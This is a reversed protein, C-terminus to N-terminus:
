LPTVSIQVKMGGPGCHSPVPCAFYLGTAADGAQVTYRAYGFFRIPAVKSSGSFDCNDYATGSALKRVGHPWFGWKFLAQLPLLHQQLLEVSPLVDGPRIVPQRWSQHVYFSWPLPGYGVLVAKAYFSWQLPGYVVMVAMAHAVHLPRTALEDHGRLLLLVDPPRWTVHWTAHSVHWTPANCRRLRCCRLFPFSHHRPFTM